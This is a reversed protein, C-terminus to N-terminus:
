NSAWAVWSVSCRQRVWGCLLLCNVWKLRSVGFFTVPLCHLGLDSVASLPTQTEVIQMCNLLKERAIDLDHYSSM